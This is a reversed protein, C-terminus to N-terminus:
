IASVLWADTGAPFSAGGYKITIILNYILLSYWVFLLLPNLFKIFELFITASNLM